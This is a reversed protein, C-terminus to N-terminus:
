AQVSGSEAVIWALFEASGAEVKVAVIGPLDYTHLAVVRAQLAAYRGRTTKALLTYEPAHEIRGQWRYIAEHPRLHVCAALREEVLVTGIRRAEGADACTVLVLLADNDM